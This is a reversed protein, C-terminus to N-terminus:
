EIFLASGDADTHGDFLLIRKHRQLLVSRSPDPPGIRSFAGSEAIGSVSRSDISRTLCFFSFRHFKVPILHSAGYLRFYIAVSRKELFFIHFFKRGGDVIFIQRRPFVHLWRSLFKAYLSVHLARNQTNVEGNPLLAM